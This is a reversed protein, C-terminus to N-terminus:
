NILPRGDGPSGAEAGRAAVRPAAGGALESVAGIRFQEVLKQLELAMRSMEETAGSMEQASAAASQTVDNVSEVAKSVQRANSSQEETAASISQSMENIDTLARALERVSDM